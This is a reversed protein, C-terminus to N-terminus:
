NISTDWYMFFEFSEFSILIFNLERLRSIMKLRMGLFFKKKLILDNKHVQEWEHVSKKLSFPLNKKM